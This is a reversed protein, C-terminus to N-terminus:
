AVELVGDAYQMTHEGGFTFDRDGYFQDGKGGGETVVLVLDENGLDSHYRSCGQSGCPVCCDLDNQMTVM